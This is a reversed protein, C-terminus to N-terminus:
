SAHAITALECSLITRRPKDPIFTKYKLLLPESTNTTKIKMYIYVLYLYYYYTFM